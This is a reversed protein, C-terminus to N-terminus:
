MRGRLMGHWYMDPLGYAKLAYMIVLEEGDDNIPEFVAKQEEPIIETLNVNFHTEIDREDVVRELTRKYKEVGFIGGTSAAYVVNSRDRIGQKRMWHDALWMIKQPAGACKISTNPFTFVANGGRFHRLTDWTSDM